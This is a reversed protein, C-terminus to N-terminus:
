RGRQRRSGQSSKAPSRKRYAKPVVPDIGAFMEDHRARVEALQEAAGPCPQPEEGEAAAAEPVGVSRLTGVLFSDPDESAAQLATTFTKCPDESTRAQWLDLAHQLPRNIAEGHSQQLHAIIRQRTAHALPSAQSNLWHLLREDARSGLLELALDVADTRLKPDDMLGWLSKMFTEDDLLAADASIASAYSEFAAARNDTGGLATLVQAMRWHLQADNGHFELLPGLSIRAAEYERAELLADVSALSAQLTRDTAGAKAETPEPEGDGDGKGEDGEGADQASGQKSTAPPAKDGLLKKLEDSAASAAADSPPTEPEDDGSTAIVVIVLLVLVGLGGAVWRVDLGPPWWPPPWWPRAHSPVVIMPGATAPPTPPAPVPTAIVASAPPAQAMPPAPVEIAPAMPLGETGGPSPASHNAVPPELQTRLQAVAERAVAASPYREEPKKALLREVLARLPDPVAAPLPPPAERIQQRLVKLPDESDFPLRGALLLYLVIGVSYLDTRADVSSGTAQEPSMYCPTGFIMGLKTLPRAGEQEQLKVIGFDLLKARAGGGEEHVMFVNDPKIDRHVLGHGHAHELGALVDDTIALAELPPLPEEDARASLSEGQLLEMVLYQHNGDSGFDSIRVCNPHDLKSVAAAERAFRARMEESAMMDEHLLKLAVDRALGTHHARFVAGMAGMGLLADLRYRGGLVQGLLADCRAQIADRDPDM